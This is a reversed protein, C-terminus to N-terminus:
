VLLQGPYFFSCKKKIDWDRGGEEEILFSIRPWKVYNMLSIVQFVLVNSLYEREMKKVFTELCFTKKENEEEEEANEYKSRRIKRRQFDEFM